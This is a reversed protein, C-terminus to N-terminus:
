PVAREPFWLPNMTRIVVKNDWCMSNFNYKNVDAATLPQEKKSFKKMERMSYLIAGASENMLTLKQTIEKTINGAVKNKLYKIFQAKAGNIFNTIMTKFLNYIIRIIIQKVIPLITERNTYLTKYTNDISNCAVIFMSKFNNVINSLTGNLGENTTIHETESSSFGDIFNISDMDFLIVDERSLENLVNKIENEHSSVNDIIEEIGDIKKASEILENISLGPAPDESDNIKYQSKLKLEEENLKERTISIQTFTMLDALTNISDKPDKDVGGRFEYGRKMGLPKIRSEGPEIYIKQDIEYKIREILNEKSTPNISLLLTRNPESDNKSNAFFLSFLMNGIILNVDKILEFTDPRLIKDTNLKDTANFVADLFHMSKIYLTKRIPLDIKDKKLEQILEIVSDVYPKIKTTFSNDYVIKNKHLDTEIDKMIQKIYDPDSKNFDRKILVKLTDKYGDLTNTIKTPNPPLSDCLEKYNKFDIRSHYDEDCFFDTFIDNYYESNWDKDEFYKYIMNIASPILKMYKNNNEVVIKYLKKGDDRIKYSEELEIDIDHKRMEVNTTTIQNSKLFLATKVCSAYTKKNIPLRFRSYSNEEIVSIKKSVTEDLESDGILVTSIVGAFQAKKSNDIKEGDAVNQGNKEIIYDVANEVGICIKDFVRNKTDNVNNKFDQAAAIPDATIEDDIDSVKKTIGEIFSSLYAFQSTEKILETFLPKQTVAEQILKKYDFVQTARQHIKELSERLVTKKKYKNGLLEDYIRNDELRVIPIIPSKPGSYLSVVTLEQFDNKFRIFDKYYQYVKEPTLDELEKRFNNSVQEPDVRTEKIKKQYDEMAIKTQDKLLNSMDNKATAINKKFESLFDPKQTANSKAKPTAKPDVKIANNLRAERDNIEDNMFEPRKVDNGNVIPDIIDHKDKINTTISDYNGSTEILNYKELFTRMKEPGKRYVPKEAYPDCNKIKAIDLDKREKIGLIARIKTTMSVKFKNWKDNLFKRTISVIYQKLVPFPDNINYIVLFLGGISQKLIDNMDIGFYDMIFSSAMGFILRTSAGFFKTGIRYTGNLMGKCFNIIVEGMAKGSNYLNIFGCALKVIPNLVVDYLPLLVNTAVNSLAGAGFLGLSEKLVQVGAFFKLQMQKHIEDIIEHIQIMIGGDTIDDQRKLWFFPNTIQSINEIEAKSDFKTNFSIFYMNLWDYLLLSDYLTASISDYIKKIDNLKIQVEKINTQIYGHLSYVVSSQYAINCVSSAIYASSVIGVAFGGVTGMSSIIAPLGALSGGGSLVALVIVSIGLGVNMAFNEQNKNTLYNNLSYLTVPAGDGKLIFSDAEITKVSNFNSRENGVILNNTESNFSYNNLKCYKIYVMSGYQEQLKIMPFIFHYLLNQKSLISTDIAPKSNIQIFDQASISNWTHFECVNQDICYYYYQSHKFVVDNYIKIFKPLLQVVTAHFLYNDTPTTHYYNSLSTIINSIANYPIFWCYYFEFDNMNINNFNKEYLKYQDSGLYKKEIIEDKFVAIKYKEWYNISKNLHMTYECWIRKNDLDKYISENPEKNGFTYLLNYVDIFNDDIDEDSSKDTHLSTKTTLNEYLNISNSRNPMIDDFNFFVSDNNMTIDYVSVFSEVVNITYRQNTLTAIFVGRKNICMDIYKNTYTKYEDYFEIILDYTKKYKNDPFENKIVSNKHEKYEPYDENYKKWINGITKSTFSAANKMNIEHYESLSLVVQSINSEIRKFVGHDIETFSLEQTMRKLQSIIKTLIDNIETYSSKYSIKELEVSIFSLSCLHLINNSYNQIVNGYLKNSDTISDDTPKYGNKIGEITHRGEFMLLNKFYDNMKISKECQYKLEKIISEISFIFNNYFTEILKFEIDDEPLSEISMTEIKSNIAIIKKNFATNYIQKANDFITKLREYEKKKEKPFKFEDLKDQFQKCIEKVGTNNWANRILDTNMNSGTSVIKYIDCLVPAGVYKFIGKLNLFEITKQDGSGIIDYLSFDGFTEYMTKCTDSKKGYWVNSIDTLEKIIHKIPTVSSYYMTTELEYENKSQTYNLEASDLNQKLISLEEDDIPNNYYNQYLKDRNLILVCKNDPPMDKIMVSAKKNKYYVNSYLMINALIICKICQKNYERDISEKATDELKEDYDSCITNMNSVTPSFSASLNLWSDRHFKRFLNLWCKEKENLGINEFKLVSINNIQYEKPAACYIPTNIFDYIQSGRFFIFYDSLSTALEDMNPEVYEYYKDESHEDDYHITEKLCFNKFQKHKIKFIKDENKNNKYNFTHEYDDLYLESTKCHLAVLKKFDNKDNLSDYFTMFEVKAIDDEININEIKKTQIKLEILRKMSNYVIQGNVIARAKVLPTFDAHSVKHSNKDAHITNDRKRFSDVKDYLESQESNTNVLYDISSFLNCNNIITNNYFSNSKDSNPKNKTIESNFDVSNKNKRNIMRQAMGNKNDYVSELGNSESLASNTIFLEDYRIDLPPAGGVIPKSKQKSVSDEYINDMFLNLKENSNTIMEFSNKKSLPDLNYNIIITKIDNDLKNLVRDIKFFDSFTNKEVFHSHREFVFNPQILTLASGYFQNIKISLQEKLLTLYDKTEIYERIKLLESNTSAYFSKEFTTLKLDFADIGEINDVKFIADTRVICKSYYDPDSSKPIEKNYSINGTWSIILKKNDHTLVTKNEGGIFKRKTKISKITKYNKNKGYKLTQGGKVPSSQFNFEGNANPIHSQETHLISRVNGCYYEFENGKPVDELASNVDFNNVSESPKNICQIIYDDTKNLVAKEAEKKRYLIGNLRRTLSTTDVNQGSEILEIMDNIKRIDEQSLGNIKLAKRLEEIMKDKKSADIGSKIMSVGEAFLAKFKFVQDKISVISTIKAQYEENKKKFTDMFNTKPKGNEDLSDKFDIMNGFEDVVMRQNSLAAYKKVLALSQESTGGNWLLELQQSSMEHTRHLDSIATQMHSSFGRITDSASLARELQQSKHERDLDEKKDILDVAMSAVAQTIGSFTQAAGNSLFMSAINTAMGSTFAAGGAQIAIKTMLRQKQQEYTENAVLDQTMMTKFSDQQVRISYDTFYQDALEVMTLFKKNKYKMKFHRYALHRQPYEIEKILKIYVKPGGYLYQVHYDGLDKEDTPSLFTGVTNIANSAVSVISTFGKRLVDSGGHLGKNDSIHILDNVTESFSEDEKIKKTTLCNEHLTDILTDFNEFLKLFDGEKYEGGKILDGGGHFGGNTKIEDFKLQETFIKQIMDTINSSQFYQAYKEMKSKNKEVFDNLEELLKGFSGTYDFTRVTEYAEKLKTKVDHFSFGIESGETELYEILLTIYGFVSTHIQDSVQILFRDASILNDTFFSINYGKIITIIQIINDYVVKINKYQDMLALASDSGGISGGRAKSKGRIWESYKEISQGYSKATTQFDNVFKEISDKISKILNKIKENIKKNLHDLNKHINKITEILNKKMDSYYKTAKEKVKDKVQLATDISKTAVTQSVQKFMGTANDYMVMKMTPTEIKALEAENIKSEDSMAEIIKTVDQEEKEFTKKKRALNGLATNVVGITSMAADTQLTEFIIQMQDRITDKVFQKIEDANALLQQSFDNIGKSIKTQIENLIHQTDHIMQMFTNKEKDTGSGGFVYGGEMLIVSTNISRLKQYCDDSIKKSKDLIYNISNFATTKLIIIFNGCQTSVTSYALLIAQKLGNLIAFVTNKGATAMSSTIGWTVNFLTTAGAFLSGIGISGIWSTFTATGIGGLYAPLLISSGLALAAGTVGIAGIYGANKAWNVYRNFDDRKISNGWLTVIEKSNATGKTDEYINPGFLRMKRPTTSVTDNININITDNTHIDGNPYTKKLIICDNSLENAYAFPELKIYSINFLTKVSALLISYKRKLRYRITEIENKINGGCLITTDSESTKDMAGNVKKGGADMKAFNSDTETEDYFMEGLRIYAIREYNSNCLAIEPENNSMYLTNYVLKYYFYPDGPEAKNHEKFIGYSEIIKLSILRTLLDKEKDHVTILKDHKKGTINTNSIKSIKDILVKLNDLVRYFDSSDGFFKSKLIRTLEIKKKKM